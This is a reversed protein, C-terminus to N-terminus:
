KNVAENILYVKGNRHICIINKYENSHTSITNKISTACYQSTKTTYDSVVACKLGSEKFEDLLRINKSYNYAKPNEIKCIDFETFRM